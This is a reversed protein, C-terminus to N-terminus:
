QQDRPGYLTDVARRAAEGGPTSPGSGAGAAAAPVRGVALYAIAGILNGFVIVLAWLWKPGGRVTDRRGLDVLAYLQMAIQVLILAVIIAAVTTSVHLLGALRDLM